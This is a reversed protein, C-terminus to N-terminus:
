ILSEDESRGNGTNEKNASDTAGADAGSKTPEAPKKDAFKEPLITFESKRQALLEADDKAAELYGVAFEETMVDGYTRSTFDRDLGKKKFNFTYLKNRDKIKFTNKSMTEKNQTLLAEPDAGNVYAVFADWHKHGAVSGCTPCEPFYGFAENFLEQYKPYITASNRVAVKGKQVIEKATAM